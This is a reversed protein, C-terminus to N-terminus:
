VDYSDTGEYARTVAAEIRPRDEPAIVSLFDAYSQLREDAPRGLIKAAEDSSVFADTRPDWEWSGVRALRQAQILHTESRRLREEAERQDSIDTVMSLWGTPAGHDDVLPTLGRRVWVVSGDARRLRIDGHRGVPTGAGADPLRRPDGAPLLDYASRGVLEDVAYGLLDAFQHNAFTIRAELDVTAVGEHATDVIARYRREIAKRDSIDSTTGAVGVVRGRRDHIPVANVSIDTITGDRRIRRTEFNRVPTGRLVEALAREAIARDPEPITDLLRHGIRDEPASGEIEDTAGGIETIRGDRDITWLQDNASEALRRLREESARLRRGALSAGAALGALLLAPTRARIRPNDARPPGLNFLAGHICGISWFPTM